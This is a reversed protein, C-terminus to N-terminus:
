SAAPIKPLPKGAYEAWSEYFSNMGGRDEWEIIEDADDRITRIVKQADPSTGGAVIVYSKLASSNLHEKIYSIKYIKGFARDRRAADPNRLDITQAIHLAGNQLAFEVVVDVSPDPAYHTVVKHDPNGTKDVDLIGMNKFDKTVDTYLRSKQERQTAKRNPTTCTDNLLIRVWKQFDTQDKYTFCGLNKREVGRLEDFANLTALATDVDANGVLGPITKVKDQLAALNSSPNFARIKRLDSAIFVQVGGEPMFVVVGYNLHESRNVYPQYSLVATYAVYNM